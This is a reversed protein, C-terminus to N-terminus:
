SAEEIARKLDERSLKLKPKSFTVQEIENLGGNAKLAFIFYFAKRDDEHGALVLSSAYKSGQPRHQGCNFEIELKDGWRNYIEM